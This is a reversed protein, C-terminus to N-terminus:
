AGRGGARQSSRAPPPKRVEALRDGRESATVVVPAGAAVLRHHPQPAVGRRRSGSRGRDRRAAEVTTTVSGAFPDIVPPPPPNGIRLNCPMSRATVTPPNDAQSPDTSAAGVRRAKQDACAYPSSRFPVPPLGAGEATDSAMLTTGRGPPMSPGSPATSGFRSSSAGFNVMKGASTSSRHFDDNGIDYMVNNLIDENRLDYVYIGVMENVSHIFEPDVLMVKMVVM